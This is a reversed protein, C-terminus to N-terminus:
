GSRGLEAADEYGFLRLVTRIARGRESTLEPDREVALRAEKDASGLLDGHAEPSVLRFPPLGSQQTGLMDGAGRLRFDIEAIAFGDDNRRIADLREKATEGLPPKWLLVCSGQKDGRGVRGRLQHLQALGFREAHEIVIITAEPVNVGVEIVTTAVMLFSEGTRFREMAAEREAPPMRGHVIEVGKGFFTKLELYRDEVAALDVSESEEILPCV